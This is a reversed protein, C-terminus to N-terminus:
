SCRTTRRRRGASPTQSGGADAVAARSSGVSPPGIGRKGCQSCIRDHLSITGGCDACAWRRKEERLYRKLGVRKLRLSNDILSVQYRQRYSRDLRKVVACPFEPCDSCFASRKEVACTRIPCERCHRPQAEAKAWCGLCPKKRRLHAYCVACNMGCPALMSLAVGETM